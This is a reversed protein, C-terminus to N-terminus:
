NNTKTTKNKNNIEPTQKTNIFYKTLVVNQQKTKNEM